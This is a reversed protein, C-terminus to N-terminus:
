IYLEIDHKEEINTFNLEELCIYDLFATGEFVRAELVRTFVFQM